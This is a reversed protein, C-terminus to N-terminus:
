TFVNTKGDGHIIMNSIGLAYIDDQYEIGILQTKKINEIKTQNGKAQKIMTKMASILFGGTGMCNDLIISDQNVGALESFLDTIHPPTLVIGLGKDSNAYRLFEIYFQGLTDFYKHTKM